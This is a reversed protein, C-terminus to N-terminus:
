ADDGGYRITAEFKPRNDAYWQAAEMCSDTGYPHDPNPDSILNQVGKVFSPLSSGFSWNDLSKVCVFGGDEPMMINPHFIPTLWKARPREYPYEESIILRFIHMDGVSDKSIRAPTNALGIQMDIPFNAYEPTLPLSISLYENLARIENNLRKILIPRALGM